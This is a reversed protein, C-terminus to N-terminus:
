CRSHKNIRLHLIVNKGTNRWSIFQISLESRNLRWFFFFLFSSPLVFFFDQFKLEFLRKLQFQRFFLNTISEDVPFRTWTDRTLPWPQRSYIEPPIEFKEGGGDISFSRRSRNEGYSEITCNARIAERM